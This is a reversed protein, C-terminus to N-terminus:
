LVLDVLKLGNIAYIVIILKVQFREAMQLYAWRMAKSKAVEVVASVVLLTISILMIQLLNDIGAFPTNALWSAM